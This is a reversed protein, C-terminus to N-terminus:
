DSMIANEPMPAKVFHVSTNNDQCLEIMKTLYDIYIQKSQMETYERYQTTEFVQNGIYAYRGGHLEAKEIALQNDAYRDIDNAIDDLMGQFTTMYKSAFSLEYALYDCVASYMSDSSVEDTANAIIDVNDKFSLRHNSVIEDWYLEMMHYHSDSYCIFCDQPVQNNQLYEKLIYYGEIPSTGLVSLNITTDSLAEPMFGANASSDGVIITKYEKNQTISTISQNWKLCAEEPTIYYMGGFRLFGSLGIVPVMVLACKAVLKIVKNKM